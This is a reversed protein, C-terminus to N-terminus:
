TLCKFKPNTCVNNHTRTITKVKYTSITFTANKEISQMFGFSSMFDGFSLLLHFAFQSKKFVLTQPNNLEMDWALHVSTHNFLSCM